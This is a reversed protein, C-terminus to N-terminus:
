PLAPPYEEPSRLDVGTADPLRLWLLWESESDFETVTQSNPEVVFWRVSGRQAGETVVFTGVLRGGVSGVLEITATNEKPVLPLGSRTSIYEVHSDISKLRLSFPLRRDGFMDWLIWAPCLVLAGALLTAIFSLATKAGFHLSSHRAPQSASDRGTVCKVSSSSVNM